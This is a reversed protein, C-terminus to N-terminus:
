LMRCSSFTFTQAQLFFLLDELYIQKTKTVAGRPFKKPPIYMPSPPLLHSRNDVSPLPHFNKAVYNIFPGLIHHCIQLFCNKTINLIIFRNQYVCKM